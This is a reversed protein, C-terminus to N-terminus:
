QKAHLEFFKKLFDNASNDVIARYAPINNLQSTLDNIFLPALYDKSLLSSVIPGHEPLEATYSNIAEIQAQATAKEITELIAERGHGIIFLSKLPYNDLKNDTRGETYYYVRQDAILAYNETLLTTARNEKKLAKILYSKGSGPLGAFIYAKGNLALAAGSIIAIKKKERAKLFVLNQIILRTVFREYHKKTKRGRFFIVNACHKFFNKQFIIEGHWIDASFSIKASVEHFCFHFSEDIQKSGFNEGWYIDLNKLKQGHLKWSYGSKFEFSLDIDCNQGTEPVIYGAFYNKVFNLFSQKDTKIRTKTELLQITVNNM